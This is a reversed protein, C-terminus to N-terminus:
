ASGHVAGNGPVLDGPVCHRERTTQEVVAEFAEDDELGVGENVAAPRKAMMMM